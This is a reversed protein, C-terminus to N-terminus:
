CTVFFTLTTNVLKPLLRKTGLITIPAPSPSCFLPESNIHKSAASAANLKLFRKSFSFFYVNFIM